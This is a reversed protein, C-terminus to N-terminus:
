KMLLMKSTARFSGSQMTAIYTGSPLNEGSFPVEYTGANLEQNVLTAVERGLLDYVKLSVFGAAPLDFRIQTSPNFPNPYNQRLAYGEPLENSVPAISTFVGDYRQQASDGAAFLEGPSTGYLIAYTVTTSDGPAIERYGATLHLIAGDIGAEPLIPDFGPTSTLFCRLTDTTVENNPDVSYANWDMSHFSYPDGSVVKIGVHPAEGSRYFFAVKSAADYDITEFGFSGSLYPVVAMAVYGKLQAGTGNLVTYQVLVFSDSNWAFVNVRVAVDPFAGAYAGDTLTTAATDAFSSQVLKASNGTKVDQDDNYDFVSTSDIAIIVTARSIHCPPATRANPLGIRVAGANTLRFGLIGTGGFAQARATDAIGAVLLLTCVAVLRKM